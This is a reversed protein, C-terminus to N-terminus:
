VSEKGGRRFIEELEGADMLKPVPYLPNAEADAHRALLPIDEGRLEARPPIGMSENLGEIWAIFADSADMDSLTGDCIGSARALRSLRVSCSDGYMRLVVPLLTANTRGHPANYMGGLAHAAAHVYGVYSVTFAMGAKYAALQMNRRAALDGGNEYAAILNEKILTVAEVALRRTLRTTSRGIYAEVAHTLADMGTEATQAPPLTKTLGPDLLAYSPALCFSLVTFKRHTKEDTIVAAITAESGTGATTPVAIFLPAKGRVKLVGKMKLLSKRPKIARACVGKACDMPSGGGVAIVADCKKERYISFAAEVDSVTPNAATKDFIEASIGEQSLIALVPELLGHSRVGADTVLLPRVKGKERVLAAAEACGSLLKPERYPLLPIALRMATQVTRCWVRRLFKM